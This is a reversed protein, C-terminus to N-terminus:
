YSRIMVTGIALATMVYIPLCQGFTMIQTTSTITIVWLITAVLSIVLGSYAFAKSDGISTDTRIRYFLVVGIVILITPMAFSGILNVFNAWWEHTNNVSDTSLIKSLNYTGNSLFGLDDAM